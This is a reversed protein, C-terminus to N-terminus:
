QPETTTFNANTNPQQVSQFNSVIHLIERMESLLMFAMKRKDANSPLGHIEEIRPLLDNIAMIYGNVVEPNHQAIFNKVTGVIVDNAAVEEIAKRNDRFMPIQETMEYEWLVIESTFM